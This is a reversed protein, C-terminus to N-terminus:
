WVILYASIVNYIPIPIPIYASASLPLYLPYMRWAGGV